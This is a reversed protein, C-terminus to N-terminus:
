YYKYNYKQLFKKAESDNRHYLVKYVVQKSWVSNPHTEPYQDWGLIQDKDGEILIKSPIEM